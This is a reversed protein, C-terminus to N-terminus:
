VPLGFCRRWEQNGPVIPDSDIVRDNHVRAIMAVAQARMVQEPFFCHEFFGRANREQDPERTLCASLSNLLWDTVDIKHWRQKIKEALWIM